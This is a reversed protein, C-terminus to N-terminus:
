EIFVKKKKKVMDLILTSIEPRMFWEPLKKGSLLITRAQTGNIHLKEKETHKKKEEGEHIHCKEHKSYFVKNFKVPEIGIDPFMDFIEHSATPSYFDGVGTHDRGIIFHSCGFNKRCLATFLAERPGAYRSFTAYTGFVVKDEPYVNRMMAEYGCIIPESHFDGTKKKGIVPHVFLGDARTKRLAEMQIFEHGRHPVNRTHFGVVTRWGREEFLRRAQRPTIEYWKHSASRRRFVSIDGALFLPGMAYVGRVGPHKEDTTGFLAHAYTHKNITYKEKVHLIGFPEGKVDALVVDDGKTCVRADDLSVDLVIPIPWVIGNSLRMSNLVSECDKKGLFGSVPSFTGLAIQEADMYQEDTVVIKPMRSLIRPDPADTLGNVLMGGHPAILSDAVTDTLYHLNARTGSSTEKKINQAVSSHSQVHEIVRNLVNVCDFPYKGVATEAALTLGYAGDLITQEIDHIEARTPKKKEVMTELLNTAVYVGKKQKAAEGMIIKQTLPIREIPIEKSLDGRDILIFDSTTIIDNLNKLGDVCEIKSIIKMRGKTLTRVEKVAAGSRMFSAAIYEVGERLAIAIAKRDKVSLPPLDYHKNPLAGHIVAGKNSGLFGGTVVHAMVRGRKASSIDTIRLILSDFDCYIFDGVDCQTIIEKPRITIATDDGLIEKGTLVFTIGEEFYRPADQIMGTRVQSGETDLIFPIGVKKAIKMFRKQDALSSHSMNVRVFDVGRAKLARVSEETNTSPGLTVIIKVRENQKEINM